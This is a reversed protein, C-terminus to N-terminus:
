AYKKISNNYSCYDCSASCEPIKDNSLCQHADVIAQEVWSDDGVYPILTLNFELKSNFSESEKKGNCYVFYSTNCVNYGNSRLLWQYIEAQRKYGIHHDKNLDVIEEKISTAKYDAVILEERSNIWLDDISGSIILNTAPHLYQIGKFNNRWDKLNPNNVPRADVGYKELLPHKIGAERYTDFEKKLLADVALNLTFPFGPPRGVGLKRDFYFCRPCELFLDIKSRSLKYPKSGEPEYMNRVRQSKYYESM